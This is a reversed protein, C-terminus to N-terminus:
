AMELFLKRRERQADEDKSQNYMDPYKYYLYIELFKRANNGFNYFTTYNTDDVQVLNACDYIQKFLYNFETVYEEMYKPMKEIVSVKDYRSIILSLKNKNREPLRKLYKLFNLNHTSIFLQEFNDDAVIKKHIM